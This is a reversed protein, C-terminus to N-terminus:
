RLSCMSRKSSSFSAHTLDTVIKIAEKQCSQGTWMDFADLLHPLFFVRCALYTEHTIAQCQAIVSVPKLGGCAAGNSRYCNPAKEPKLRRQVSSCMNIETDNISYADVHIGLAIFVADVKDDVVQDPTGLATFRHKTATDGLIALGKDLLLTNLLAPLYQLQRDLGIMDMEKHAHPRGVRRSIYDLLALSECCVMEALLVSDQTTQRGQPCAAVKSRGSPVDRLLNHLAVNGSLLPQLAISLAM